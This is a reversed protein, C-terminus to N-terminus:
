KKEPGAEKLSETFVHLRKEVLGNISDERYGGDLGREGAPRGTLLEIGEDVTRVAWVSFKGARVAEVVDKRLMLNSQNSQPIIVGQRGTLERARCIDFFGEIKQNVGGIPQIEGHQNVSGTVAIEQRLPVGSLASILAYLEASSASDGEVGEYSQEFVLRATLSLPQRQAFRSSLFGGLILVGKSHIPGGLKVEREIDVIGDRGPGVSATIRNPRGFWMDGVSLVALGNVQGVTEGTTDVMLTGRAMMEQIRDQILGSRYIKEALAKEVHKSEVIEARDQTAWFNAERILDTVQGFQTSLKEQDEAMRSSHELVTAIGSKSMPNLREKRSFATVFDTYEQVNEANRAMRTDFEARVKFLEAFEEDYGNLLYYWYPSGVLLVKVDLPITQPRVTKTSFLGLRDAPEEIQIERTRIARKLSEWSLPNRLVNEIQLVLFGGNAQHLAGSKILTFDTHLAGYHSEKEVRGFLNVYTGNEEVIVPAGQSKSSDVLLNVQYKRFPLEELWPPAVNADRQSRNSPKFMVINELLDKQLDKLYNMVDPLDAYQELLDEMSGGVVYLAVQKDVDQLQEQASREIERVQKLSAKMEDQLAERRKLYEQRVEDPLEQFQAEDLTKGKHVPVMMIGLPTAQLSYQAHSASVNLKEIIESRKQDLVKLVRERQSAYDESEFVKTIELRVHEFFNHVDQQLKRGRGAPLRCAKPSYPDEFNNVYCWDPPNERQGALRELFAKVATMKGIGPPGSIFINFGSNAIGLGFQLASVARRQGIIGNETPIGRSPDTNIEGLDVTRRLQTASLPQLM